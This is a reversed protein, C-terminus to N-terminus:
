SPRSTPLAKLVRQRIEKPSFPKQVYDVAGLKMAEAISEASGYATIIMVPTSPHKQRIQQLLTMGDMGPLEIDVLLLAYEGQGLKFLAEEAYAATEVELNEIELARALTLRINKEDDVILLRKREM